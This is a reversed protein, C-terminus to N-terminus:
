EGRPALELDLRIEEEDRIFFGFITHGIRIRDRDSLWAGEPDVREENVFTGNTSKEDFIRCDPIEQDRDINAYVLRAHRRSALGDEVTIDLNLDRGLVMEEKDLTIRLNQQKGELVILVPYRRPGGPRHRNSNRVVEIVTSDNNSEM